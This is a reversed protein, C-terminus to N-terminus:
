PTAVSDQPAQREWFFNSVGLEFTQWDPRLRQKGNEWVVKNDRYGTFLLTVSVDLQDRKGRSFCSSDQQRLVFDIYEQKKPFDGLAGLNVIEPNTGSASIRVAFGGRYDSFFGVSHNSYCRGYIEKSGTFYYALGDNEVGEPGFPQTSFVCNLPRLVKRRSTNASSHGGEIRLDEHTTKWVTKSEFNHRYSKNEQFLAQRQAARAIAYRRVAPRAEAKDVGSSLAGKALYYALNATDALAAAELLFRRRASDIRAMLGRKDAKSLDTAQLEIYGRWEGMNKLIEATKKLEGRGLEAKDPEAKEFAAVRREYKNVRAQHIWACGNLAVLSSAFLILRIFHTRSM